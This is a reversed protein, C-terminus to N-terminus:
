GSILSSCSKGIKTEAKIAPTSRIMVPSLSKKLMFAEFSSNGNTRVGRSKKSLLRYFRVTMLGLDVPIPVRLLPWFPYGRYHCLPGILHNGKNSDNRYESASLPVLLLFFGHSLLCSGMSRFYFIESFHVTLQTLLRSQRTVRSWGATRSRTVWLCSQGCLAWSIARSGSSTCCAKETLAMRERDTLFFFTLNLLLSEQYLLHCPWDRLM